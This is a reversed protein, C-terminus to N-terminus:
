RAHQGRYVVECKHGGAESELNDSVYITYRGPRSFVREATGDWKSGVISSSLRLRRASQFASSPMLERVQGASSTVILSYFSKDAVREIGLEQGHRKGLSLKLTDGGGFSAPSCRLVRSDVTFKATLGEGGLCHMSCTTLAAVFFLRMVHESVVSNLPRGQQLEAGALVCDMALVTRGRYM